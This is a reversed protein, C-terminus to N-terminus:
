RLFLMQEIEDEYDDVEIEIIELYDLKSGKPKDLTIFQTFSEHEIVNQDLLDTNINLQQNGVKCSFKYHMHSSVWFKPRFKQILKLTYPSGLKFNDIDEKFWPRDNVIRNKDGYFAINAPWDHSLGIDFSGSFNNLLEYEEKRTHYIKRMTDNNLPAKENRPLNFDQEKYIGSWGCIGVGKAKIINCYGMYYFNPILFGGKSFDMLYESCEHNGGIAITLIPIPDGHYYHHFDGLKKYKEPVAMSSLDNKNRATQLDGTLLVVDIKRGVREEFQQLTNYIRHLEGHVCGVLAVMKTSKAM